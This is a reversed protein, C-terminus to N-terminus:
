GVMGASKMDEWIRKGGFGMDQYREFERYAAKATKAGLDGFEGGAELEEMFGKVSGKLATASQPSVNDFSYMGTCVCRCMWHLPPMFGGGHAAKASVIQGDLPSCIPCVRSDNVADWLYGVLEKDQSYALYRGATAMTTMNTRVVNELWTGGPLAVTDFDAGIIERLDRMASNVSYGVDWNKALIEQAADRLGDPWTRNADFDYGRFWASATSPLLKAAEGSTVTSIAGDLYGIEILTEAEARAEEARRTKDDFRRSQGLRAKVSKWRGFWYGGSAGWLKSEALVDAIAASVGVPVALRPPSFSGTANGIQLRWHARVFVLQARVLRITEAELGLLLKEETAKTQSLQVAAM